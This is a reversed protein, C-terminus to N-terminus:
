DLCKDLHIWTGSQYDSARAKSSGESDNCPELELKRKPKYILEMHKTARANAIGLQCVENISFDRLHISHDVIFVNNGMHGQEVM